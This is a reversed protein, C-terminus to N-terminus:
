LPKIGDGIFGHLCDTMVTMHVLQRGGTTAIKTVIVHGGDPRIIVVKVIYVAMCLIRPQIIALTSATMDIQRKARVAVKTAIACLTSVMGQTIATRMANLRTHIGGLATTTMVCRITAITM